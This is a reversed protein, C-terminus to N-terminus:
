TFIHVSLCIVRKKRTTGSVRDLALRRKRAGACRVEDCKTVRTFTADHRGRRETVKDRPITPHPAMLICKRSDPALTLGCIARLLKIAPLNVRPANVVAARM